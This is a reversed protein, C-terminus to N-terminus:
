FDVHITDDVDAGVVVGLEWESGDMMWVPRRMQLMVKISPFISPLLFLPRCLILHNSPMVSEISTLKLLSWSNTISLSAQRAATQSTAFLRIRSLLQVPGIGAGVMGGDVISDDDAGGGSGEHGTVVSSTDSGDADAVKTELRM